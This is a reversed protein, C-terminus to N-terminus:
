AAVGKGSTLAESTLTETARRSRPEAARSSQEGAGVPAPRRRRTADNRTENTKM